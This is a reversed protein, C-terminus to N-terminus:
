TIQVIADKLVGIVLKLSFALLNRDTKKLFSEKDYIKHPAFTVVFGESRPVPVSLTETTELTLAWNYSQLYAYPPPPSTHSHTIPLSFVPQPHQSL